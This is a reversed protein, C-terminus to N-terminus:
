RAPAPPSPAATSSDVPPAPPKARGLFTVIQWRQQPPLSSWSPMGRTLIGNTLVRYLAAAPMESIRPTDLAPAHSTGQGSEGHCAACHRRFLKAGAATANANGAYPNRPEAASALVAGIIFLLIARGRM